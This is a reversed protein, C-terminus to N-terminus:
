CFMFAVGFQTGTERVSCGSITVRTVSIIYYIFRMLFKKVVNMQLSAIQVKEVSVDTVDLKELLSGFTDEWLYKVVTRPKVIELGRKVLVSLWASLTAMSEAGPILAWSCQVIWM